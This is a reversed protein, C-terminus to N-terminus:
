RVERQIYCKAIKEIVNIEGGLTAQVILHGYKNIVDRDMDSLILEKIEDTSTLTPPSAGYKSYLASCVWEEANLAITKNIYEEVDAMM